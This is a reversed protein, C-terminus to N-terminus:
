LCKFRPLTILPGYKDKGFLNSTSKLIQFVELFARNFNSVMFLVRLNKLLKEILIKEYLIPIFYQNVVRYVIM